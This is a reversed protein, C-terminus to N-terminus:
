DKYMGVLSSVLQLKIEYDGPAAMQHRFKIVGIGPKFIVVDSRYTPAFKEFSICQDFSGMPVQVAHHLKTIKGIAADDDFSTLYQVYDQEPTYYERKVDMVCPSSFIRPELKFIISDNAYLKEPLGLFKDPEWWILNDSYSIFSRSFRLTDLRKQLFVGNDFISDEYVWYYKESIPLAGCHEAEYDILAVENCNYTRGLPNEMQPLCAKEPANNKRCGWLLAIFLLSLSFTKLNVTWFHAAM